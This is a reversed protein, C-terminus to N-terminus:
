FPIPNACCTLTQLPRFFLVYLIGVYLILPTGLMFIQSGWNKIHPPAEEAKNELVLVVVYHIKLTPDQSPPKPPYSKINIHKKQAQTQPEGGTERKNSKGYWKNGLDLAGGDHTIPYHGVKKTQFANCGTDESSCKSQLSGLNCTSMRCITFAVGTKPLWCGDGFTFGETVELRM